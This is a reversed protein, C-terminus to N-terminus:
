GRHFKLAAGRCDFHAVVRDIMLDILSGIGTKRYLPPASRDDEAAADYIICFM